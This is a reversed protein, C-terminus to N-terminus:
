DGGGGSANWGDIGHMKRGIMLGFEGDAFRSLAFNEGRLIKQWFKEYENKLFIIKDDARTADLTWHNEANCAIYFKEFM